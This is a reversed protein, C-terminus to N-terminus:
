WESKFRDLDIKSGGWWDFVVRVLIMLLMWKVLGM